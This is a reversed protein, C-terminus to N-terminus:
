TSLFSLAGPQVHAATLRGTVYAGTDISIRGDRAVPEEVITHGHVLWMGDARPTKEFDPHGWILNRWPQDDVPLAPDAGAHTVAVNGSIWHRPLGRLWDIMERGMADALADRLEPMPMGQVRRVGYSGLTQLGGFTLWRDGQEEPDEIFRLLMHEHNGLLCHFEEPNTTNLHRMWALVDASQEGRDIYDGVCVVPETQFREDIMRLMREMAPYNGHMDGIALFPRGPAIPAEFRPRQAKRFLSRISLM